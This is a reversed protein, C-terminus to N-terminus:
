RWTRRPSYGTVPLKGDDDFVTELILLPERDTPRSAAARPLREALATVNQLDSNDLTQRAPM